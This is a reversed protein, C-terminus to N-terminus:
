FVPENSKRSRAAFAAQVKYWLHLNSQAHFPVGATDNHITCPM